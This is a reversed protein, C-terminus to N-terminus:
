HIILWSVSAPIIDDCASEDAAVIEPIVAMEEVIVPIDVKDVPEGVFPKKHIKVCKVVIRRRVRQKTGDPCTKEM